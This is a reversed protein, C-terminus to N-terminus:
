QVEVRLTETKREVVEGIVFAKEKMAERDSQIQGRRAMDYAPGPRDIFLGPSSLCSPATKECRKCVLSGGETYQFMGQCSLCKRNEM